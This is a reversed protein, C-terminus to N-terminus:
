ERNPLRKYVRKLTWTLMLFCGLFGPVYIIIFYSIALSPSIVQASYSYAIALLVLPITVIAALRVSPVMVFITMISLLFIYTNLISIAFFDRNSMVSKGANRGTATATSNLSTSNLNNDGANAQYVGGPPSLTLQYTATAVLTAVVLLANRQDDTINMSRLIYIIIKDMITLKSKLKDAFSPANTVSSGRRAGGSVLISEMEANNAAAIDLATSNELNKANLNRMTKVLLQLPQSDNKLASIHLITNGEEDKWNLIRQELKMAGRRPSKKLWGVLVQLAEYKEHKVAIHLATESKVTVDEISDPCASLFNSLLDVDGIRSAFHLPTIGERGKVRVLDRNIEVFRIVMRKHIPNYEQQNLKELDLHIPSSGEKNPKVAFSPKLRMIESAFSLHGYSAAVHLPTEVFPIVEIDELVSPNEQILTYLGDIDGLQAISPNM